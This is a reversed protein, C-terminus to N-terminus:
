RRNAIFYASRDGGKQDSAFISVTCSRAMSTNISLTGGDATLRLPRRAAMLRLFGHYTM